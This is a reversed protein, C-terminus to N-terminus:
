GWTGGAVQGTTVNLRNFLNTTAITIKEELDQSPRDPYVSAPPPIHHRVSTAVV